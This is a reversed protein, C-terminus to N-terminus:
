NKNNDNFIEDIDKENNDSIEMEDEYLIISSPNIQM